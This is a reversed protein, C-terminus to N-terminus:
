AIAGVNRSFPGRERADEERGGRRGSARGACELEDVFSSPGSRCDSEVTTPPRRTSTGKWSKESANVTERPIARQKDTM